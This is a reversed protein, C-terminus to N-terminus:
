IFEEGRDKNAKEKAKQELLDEFEMRSLGREVMEKQKKNNWVIKGLENQEEYCFNKNYETETYEFSHRYVKRFGDWKLIEGCDNCTRINM